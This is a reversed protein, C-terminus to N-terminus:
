AGRDIRALLKLQVRARALAAQRAEFGSDDEASLAEAETLAAEVTERELEEPRRAAATLITLRDEVMQAFGGDVFLVHNEEAGEVRLVGIGLKCLIPARSRLVGLEGDHAPLAVFRAECELVSREPTV